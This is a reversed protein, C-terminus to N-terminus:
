SERTGIMSGNSRMVDLEQKLKEEYKRIEEISMGLWNDMMCFVQRNFRLLTRRLSKLLLDKLKSEWGKWNLHIRVLKYCTIAVPQDHIWYAGKLPGRSVMKSQYTTPDTKLDFDRVDAFDNVIDLLEVTRAKLEDDKLQHINEEIKHGDKHITAITMRFDDKMYGPNTYETFVYPFCNWSKEHIEFVDQRSLRRYTNPFKSALYLVKHTFQGKRPVRTPDNTVIGEFPENKLWQWGEGGGTENKSAEGVGHLQGIQYEDLTFPLRIRYEHLFDAMSEQSDKRQM